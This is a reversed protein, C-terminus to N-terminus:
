RAPTGPWCGRACGPVTLLHGRIQLATLRQHLHEDLYGSLQQVIVEPDGVFLLEYTMSVLRRLTEPPHHEVYVAQLYRWGVERDVPVGDVSWNGIVSVFRPGQAKTLVEEFEALSEAARAREALDRLEPAGTSLVLRVKKGQTLHGGVAKLVKGVADLTWAGKSPVDKVQECWTDDAEEVEFEIGAGAQGPPELRIRSARGRLVDAM